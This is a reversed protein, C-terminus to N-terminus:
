RGKKDRVNIYYYLTDSYFYAIRGNGRIKQRYGYDGKIQITHVQKKNFIPMNSICIETNGVSVNKKNFNTLMFPMFESQLVEFKGNFNLLTDFVCLLM